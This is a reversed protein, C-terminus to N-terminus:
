YLRGAAYEKEDHFTAQVTHPGFQRGALEREANAADQVTAYELFIKRIASSDVSPSPTRPIKIGLLKGFKRVEEEVEEKLGEYDEDAGLDEDTVMNHLVLIRTKPTVQASAVPPLGVGVAATAHPPPPPPPALPVGQRFAADLAANAIDLASAGPPLAATHAAMPLGMMGASAPVVVHGAQQHMAAVPLLAPPPPPIAGATRTIPAWYQDFHIPATPMPKLGMAADVLTEIDYGSVIVADPRVGPPPPGGGGALGQMAGGNMMAAAAAAAAPANPVMTPVSADTGMQTGGTRDGAGRATLIKGGGLDMGNLGMVAVQTVNPDAFEV